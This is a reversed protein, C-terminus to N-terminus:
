VNNMDGLMDNAEPLSLMIDALRYLAENAEVGPNKLDITRYYYSDPSEGLIELPELGTFVMPDVVTLKNMEKQIESLEDFKTEYESALANAADTIDKLQEDISSQVASVLGTGILLFRDASLFGIDFLGKGKGFGAVLAAVAILLAFEDGLVKVALKMLAQTLIMKGIIIVLAKLLAIAGVAAAAGLASLAGSIQPQMLVISLFLVAVKFFGSQYWKIKVVEYSNVIMILSQYYLRDRNVINLKKAIKSVVPITFNTYSPDKDSEADVSKFVGPQSYVAYRGKITNKHQLGEITLEEYELENLQHKIITKNRTLISSILFWGGGGGGVAYDSPLYSIETDKQKAGPYISGQKIESKIFSWQIEINLKKDKIQIKQSPMPGINFNWSIDGDSQTPDERAATYWQIFDYESYFSVEELRKFFHYLYEKGEKYKTNLDIASLIYAHDMDNVDPNEEIKETLDDLDIGWYKLLKETTKYEESDKNGERSVNTNELRIPVIPYFEDDVFSNQTPLLASYSAKEYPHIWIRYETDGDPNTYFYTVVYKEEYAEDNSIFEKYSEKELEYTLTKAEKYTYGKGNITTIHLNKGLSETTTAAGNLNTETITIDEGNSNVSFYSHIIERSSSSETSGDSYDTVTTTTTDTYASVIEGSPSKGLSSHENVSTTTDDWTTESSIVTVTVEGTNPDTTSGTEVVTTSRKTRNSEYTHTSISSSTETTNGYGDLWNETVVGAGYEDRSDTISSSSKGTNVWYEVDVNFTLKALYNIWYKYPGYAKVKHEEEYEVFFNYYQTKDEINLYQAEKNYFDAIDIPSIILSSISNLEYGDNVSVKNAVYDSTVYADPNAIVNDIDNQILEGENNLVNTNPNLWLSNYLYAEVQIDITDETVQVMNITVDEQIEADIIPKITSADAVIGIVKSDPLGNVYKNKGYSKAKYMNLNVGNVLDDVMGLPLDREQYISTLVSGKLTDPIEELLPAAVSAVFTKKKSFFGM